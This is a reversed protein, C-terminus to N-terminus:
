EGGGDGVSESRMDPVGMTLRVGLRSARCFRAPGSELRGNGRLPPSINPCSPPIRSPMGISKPDLGDPLETLRLELGM